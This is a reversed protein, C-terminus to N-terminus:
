LLTGDCQSSSKGRVSAVAHIFVDFQMEDSVPRYWGIALQGEEKIGCHCREEFGYSRFGRFVRECYVIHVGLGVVM